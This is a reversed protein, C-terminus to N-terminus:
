SNEKDMTEVTTAGNIVNRRNDSHVGVKEKKRAAIECM